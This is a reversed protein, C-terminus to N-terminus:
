SNSQSYDYLKIPKTSPFFDTTSEIKFKTVKVQKYGPMADLFYDFLAKGGLRAHQIHLSEAMFLSKAYFDNAYRVIYEDLSVIGIFAIRKCDFYNKISIRHLPFYNKLKVNEESAPHPASDKLGVKAEFLSINLEKFDHTKSQKLVHESSILYDFFTTSDTQKSELILSCLYLWDSLAINRYVYQYFRYFSERGVPISISSNVVKDNIYFGLGNNFTLYYHLNQAVSLIHRNLHLVSSTPSYITLIYEDWDSQM